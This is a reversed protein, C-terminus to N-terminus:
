EVNFLEKVQVPSFEAALMLSRFMVALDETTIESSDREVVYRRLGVVEGGVRLTGYDIELIVRTTGSM